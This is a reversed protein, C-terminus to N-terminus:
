LYTLLGLPWFIKQSFFVFFLIMEFNMFIFLIKSILIYIPSEVLLSNLMNCCFERSSSFHGKKALPSTSKCFARVLLYVTMKLLIKMYFSLSYLRTYSVFLPFFLSPLPYYRRSVWDIIFMLSCIKYTEQHYNVSCCELVWQKWFYSRLYNSLYHGFAFPLSGANGLAVIWPFSFEFIM